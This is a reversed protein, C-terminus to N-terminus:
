YAASLLQAVLDPKLTSAAMAGSKMCAAAIPFAGLGGQPSLRMAHLWQGDGRELSQLRVLAALLPPHLFRGDEELGPPRWSQPTDAWCYAPYHLQHAWGGPLAISVLAVRERDLRSRAHPWLLCAESLPEGLVPLYQAAPGFLELPVEYQVFRAGWARRRVDGRDILRASLQLARLGPLLEARPAPILLSRAREIARAAALVPDLGPLDALHLALGQYLEQAPPDGWGFFDGMEAAQLLTRRAGLALEPYALVLMALVGDVDLHDNVALDAREGAEAFRLCIATATDGRFQRPTRNGFRHSLEVDVGPRLSDSARGDVYATRASDPRPSAGGAIWIRM